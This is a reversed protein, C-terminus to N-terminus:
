IFNKASTAVIFESRRTASRGDISLRAKFADAKSDFGFKSTCVSAVYRSQDMM